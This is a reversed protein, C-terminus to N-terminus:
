YKIFEGTKSITKPKILYFTKSITSCNWPDHHFHVETLIYLKHHQQQVCECVCTFQPISKRHVGYTFM